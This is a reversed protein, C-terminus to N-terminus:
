PVGIYKHVQASLKFLDPRRLCLEVCLRTADPDQSIPQLWFEANIHESRLLDASHEFDDTDQKDGIVFKVENAAKFSEIPPKQAKPSLTIWTLPIDRLATLVAPFSGNTEIHTRINRLSLNEVLPVIDQMTPEGGTLVVHPMKALDALMGADIEYGGEKPQAELTDCWPCRLNSGQFRIFTVPTGTWHGEGQISNFIKNM